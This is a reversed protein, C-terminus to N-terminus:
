VARFAVRFHSCLVKLITQNLIKTAAAAALTVIAKTTQTSALTTAQM